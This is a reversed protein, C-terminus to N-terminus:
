TRMIKWINQKFYTNTFKSVNQDMVVPTKRERSRYIRLYLRGRSPQEERGYWVLLNSSLLNMNGYNGKAGVWFVDLICFFLHIICHVCHLEAPFHECKFAQELGQICDWLATCRHISKRFPRWELKVLKTSAIGSCYIVMWFSFCYWFQCDKWM